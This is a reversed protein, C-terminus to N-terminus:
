EAVFCLFLVKYDGAAEKPPIIEDNHAAITQHLLAIFNADVRLIWLQVITKRTDYRHGCGNHENAQEFILQYRKRGITKDRDEGNGFMICLIDIQQAGVHVVYTAQANM